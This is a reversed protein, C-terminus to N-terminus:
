TVIEQDKTGDHYNNYFLLVTMINCVDHDSDAYM